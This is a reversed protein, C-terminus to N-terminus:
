CPAQHEHQSNPRSSRHLPRIAYCRSYDGSRPQSTKRKARLSIVTWKYLKRTLRKFVLYRKGLPTVHNLSTATTSDNLKFQRFLGAHHAHTMATTAPFNSCARQRKYFGILKLNSSPAFFNDSVFRLWRILIVPTKTGDATSSKSLDKRFHFREWYICLYHFPFRFHMGRTQIQSAM